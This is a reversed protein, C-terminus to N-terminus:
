FGWGLNLSPIPLTISIDLGLGLSGGLDLSLANIDVPGFNMAKESSLAFNASVGADLQPKFGLGFANGKGDGKDYELFSIGLDASVSAGSAKGGLGVAFGDDTFEFEAHGSASLLDAHVKGYGNFNDSGLVVSGDARALSMDGKLSAGFYDTNAGIKFQGNANILSADGKFKLYDTANIYGGLGFATYEGDAGRYFDGTEMRYKYEHAKVYLMGYISPSLGGAWQREAGTDGLVEYGYPDNMAVEALAVPEEVTYWKEKPIQKAKKYDIKGNSHYETSIKDVCNKLEQIRQYLSDAKSLATDNTTSLDSKITEVSKVINDYDSEVNSSSIKKVTIYEEAQSNVTEIETILDTFASKKTTLADKTDGLTGSGVIGSSDSEFSTFSDKIETIATTTEKILNLFSNLYNIDVNSVYQKYDDAGGGEFSDTGVIKTMAKFQGYLADSATQEAKKIDSLMQTLEDNVLRPM